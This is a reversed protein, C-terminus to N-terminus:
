AAQQALLLALAKPLHAAIAAPHPDSLRPVHGLLPASLGAELAELNDAGHPMAADVTNAVWGALPLGRARVAEATLLAHNICGLRLGVVLVVPLGLDVALDATDWGPVLPVRFGGVGEVFAIDARAAVGRVAALLSDRSITRGELRAAIHPACPTRLQLPGVEDDRLDMNSAARLRLVDENVWRGDVCDQGAALPKIAAARLGSQAALHTLAATIATKGIETDTGTIFFAGWAGGSRPDSGGRPPQKEDQPPGASFFPGWAGGSRPDSGGRPPQKEDQPPGAVFFGRTM